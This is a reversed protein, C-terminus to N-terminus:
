GGILKINEPYQDELEKLMDIMNGILKATIEDKKLINIVLLDKKEQYSIAKEDFKLIANVTSIVLSSVSACVIDKGYDDYNAHGSVTIENNKINVKIM